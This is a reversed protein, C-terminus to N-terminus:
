TIIVKNLYNDLLYKDHVKIKLKLSIFALIYISLSIIHVQCIVAQRM